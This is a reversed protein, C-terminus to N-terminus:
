TASKRRSSRFPNLTSDKFFQKPSRILKKFKKQQKKYRHHNEKRTNLKNFSRISTDSDFKKVIDDPCYFYANESAQLASLSAQHYQKKNSLTKLALEFEDQSNFLKLGDCFYRDFDPNQSAVVPVGLAASEWFKLASKCNNFPNKLLPAITIWSSDIYQSLENYPLKKTTSVRDLNELTPPIGIDGIIHLKTDSNKKIWNELASEIVKFNSTHNATGPFYRIIKNNFRDKISNNQVPKEFSPIQNPTFYYLCQPHIEKAAKILETTSMHCRHFLLLAAKSRRANKKASALSEKNCLVMPSSYALDPRFLLDDFDAEATIGLNYINKIVKILKRSIRPRHFIIKSYNKLSIKKIESMHIIDSKIGNASNKMAQYICRYRASADNAYYQGRKSFSVYLITEKQKAIEM